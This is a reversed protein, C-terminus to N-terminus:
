TRRGLTRRRRTAGWHHQAEQALRQGDDAQAAAETAARVVADLGGDHAAGEDPGM